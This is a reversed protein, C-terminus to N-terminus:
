QEESARHKKAKPQDNRPGYKRKRYPGPMWDDTDESKAPISSPISTDDADERKLAMAPPFSPGHLGANRLPITAPLATDAMVWEPLHVSRRSASERKIHENAFLTWDKDYPTALKGDYHNWVWNVDKNPPPGHNMHEGLAPDTPPLRHIEMDMGELADYNFRKWYPLPNKSDEKKVKDLYRKVSKICLPPRACLHGVGVEESQFTQRTRLPPLSQRSYMYLYLQYRPRHQAPITQWYLCDDTLHDSGGCLVCSEIAGDKCPGRCEEPAHARQCGFHWIHSRDLPLPPLADYGKESVLELMAPRKMAKFHWSEPKVRAEVPPARKPLSKKPPAQIRPAQRAQQASPAASQSLIDRRSYHNPGIHGHNQRGRHPDQQEHDSLGSPSDYRDRRPTPSRGRYTIQGAYGDADCRYDRSDDRRYSYGQQYPQRYEWHGQAYAPPPPPPPPQPAWSRYGGYANNHPVWVPAQPHHFSLSRSQSGHDYYQGYNHNDSGYSTPPASSQYNNSRYSNAHESPQNNPRQDRSSDRIRSSPRHSGRGRNNNSM